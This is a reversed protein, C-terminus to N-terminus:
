NRRRDDDDGDDIVWILSKVIFIDLSAISKIEKAKGKEGISRREADIM